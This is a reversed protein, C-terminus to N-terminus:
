VFMGYAETSLYIYDCLACRVHKITAKGLACYAHGRLRALVGMNGSIALGNHLYPVCM